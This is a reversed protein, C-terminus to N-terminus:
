SARRDAKSADSAFRKQESVVHRFQDLALGFAALEGDQIAGDQYCTLADRLIEDAERELEQLAPLSSESRALGILDFLRERLVLHQSKEDRKFFARLSAGASGLASFM